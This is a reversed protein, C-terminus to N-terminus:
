NKAAAKEELSQLQEDLWAECGKERARTRLFEFIQDFEGSAADPEAQELQLVVNHFLDALHFTVKDGSDHGRQRMELLARFLLEHVVARSSM